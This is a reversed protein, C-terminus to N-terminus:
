KRFWTPQHRRCSAVASVMSEVSTCKQLISRLSQYAASTVRSTRLVSQMDGFNDDKAPVSTFCEPRTEVLRDLIEVANEADFAKLIQARVFTFHLPDVKVGKLASKLWVYREDDFM